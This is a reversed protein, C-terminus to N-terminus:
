GAQAPVGWGRFWCSLSRPGNSAVSKAVMPSACYFVFATESWLEEWIIFSHVSSLRSKTPNKFSGM